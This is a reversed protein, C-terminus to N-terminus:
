WSSQQAGPCASILFGSNEGHFFVFLCVFVFLFCWQQSCGLDSSWFLVYHCDSDPRQARGHFVSCVTKSSLCAYLLTIFHPLCWVLLCVCVRTKVFDTSDLLCFHNRGPLLLWGLYLFCCTCVLFLWPPLSEPPVRGLLLAVYVSVLVPIPSSLLCFIDIFTLLIRPDLFHHSSFQGLAASFVSSFAATPPVDLSCCAM